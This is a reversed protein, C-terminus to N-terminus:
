VKASANPGALESLVELGDKEPMRLDLVIVDPKVKQWLEVCEIGTRAEGVVTIDDEAELLKRLGERFITHDDAILVRISSRAKAM